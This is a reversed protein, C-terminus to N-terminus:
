PTPARLRALLSVLLFLLLLAGANHAVAVALPLNLKVNAIGLAVQLLAALALLTGWGRLGPMRWLRVALALLAVFAVVAMMRHALQIAIRSAGDLVGGEYDVGIGRWLVFGERFDAPPWWQGVCTPFDTGCALAAYNASTWGGLAIQVALVALVVLAWARLRGADVLRIPYDTARWALWALLAFTTLGGLLHAMVVVPKLLWTVTWMGLLAQFIIVALTLASVRALAGTRWRLAALLLLAEGAGALALAAGPHGRMYLPIAAAVLVVAAAVQAVGFRQRRAALLALVMVLVGLAAAIHRHVQERWAKHPEVPRVATLTPDVDAHTVSPWTARGYCTPWDPCSLGANSLRVFAGFVIVVAALAVALWAIRHFHRHPVAKPRPAM